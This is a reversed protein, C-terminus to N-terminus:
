LKMKKVQSNKKGYTDTKTHCKHCLTIGNSIDYAKRWDDVRKILHHAELKETSGCQTCKGDRQIVKRSWEQLRWGCREPHPVRLLALAEAHTRLTVGNRVLMGKMRGRDRNFMKGLTMLSCGEKYLSTIKVIEEEKYYRNPDIGQKLRWETAKKRIKDRNKNRWKALYEKREKTLAM